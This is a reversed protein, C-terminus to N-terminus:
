YVRSNYAFLVEGERLEYRTIESKFTHFFHSRASLNALHFVPKINTPWLAIALWGAQFTGRLCQQFECRYLSSDRNEPTMAEM